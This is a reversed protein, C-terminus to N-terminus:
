ELGVLKLAEMAELWTSINYTYGPVGIYMAFFDSVFATAEAMKSPEFEFISISKIGVGLESSFYPGRKTIYAPVEMFRKGMEKSSETPFTIIGIIVM